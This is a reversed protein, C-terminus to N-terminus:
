HLDRWKILCEALKTQTDKQYICHATESANLDLDTLIKVMDGYLAEKKFSIALHKITHHLRYENDISESAWLAYVANNVHNNIDIDDFRVKIEFSFNGVAQKIKPFDTNVAREPLFKYEPFYKKLVVPRRSDINILVWQSSAQIIPNGEADYVMFDRIAGWLKEEAPWTEIVVHEEMGPLRKIDIVYNSGVWSLNHAQCASFGFGIYDAHTTAIDQLWNLLTLIRLLGHCDVEYSKVTYEKRYREIKVSM